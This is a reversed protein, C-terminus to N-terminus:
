GKGTPIDIGGKSKSRDIHENLRNEHHALGGKLQQLTDFVKSNLWVEIQEMNGLKEEVILLREHLETLSLYRSSDESTSYDEIM